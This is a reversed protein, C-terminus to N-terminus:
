PETDALQRVVVTRSGITLTFPPPKVENLDAATAEADFTGVNSRELTAREPSAVPQPAVVPVQDLPGAAQVLEGLVWATGFETTVQWWAAAEAAKGTIPLATDAAVRGVLDYGTGPGARLNLLPTEVIATPTDPVPPVDLASRELTSRELTSSVLEAAPPGAKFQASWKATLGLYQDGFTASPEIFSGEPWENFSTIVVWNPAGALAAQWSREYYAGGARDQAFGAGPRIRRDDYGPMVTAVWFKPQGTATRMEAVRQAFKQNVAALDAPPNWTNSYLYHGDFVRLYGADVGENIWAAGYGPDVQDRIARWTEVGYIGPRWFFIVPRGDVRLFAPHNAHTALAHRLAAAVDGSGGFFPSDTEFLIGIRFSRAAAEDLLAKLNEETPNNGAPGYWAVLFADIGAARAQDIQRGMVARDRSVYPEAPLDSLRDLTWSNEDFWPYYIALVLPDSSTQAPPGGLPAAHAPQFLLSFILVLALLLVTILIRWGLKPPSTTRAEAASVLSDFRVSKRAM